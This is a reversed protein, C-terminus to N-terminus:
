GAPSATGNVKMGETLSPPASLIVTDGERVGERVRVNEGEAGGPTLSRRVAKGNVVVYVFTGAADQRVAAAPITLVRSRDRPTWQATGALGSAVRTLGAPLRLRVIYSRGDASVVPPTASVVATLPTEPQNDLTIRVRQGPQVDAVQAAPVAVELSLADTAVVMMLPMGPQAIEGSRAQLESIQGTFPSVLSGGGVQAVAATRGARAQAIQAQAAEIDRDAIRLAQTKARRADRLAAEAQQVGINAASVEAASVETRLPLTDAAPRAAARAQELAALASDRQSRAIDAQAQAGELDARAIGKHDYLFQLRALTENAQKLGIEAQRVGAEAQRVAADARERDSVAGMGTLRGGLRAQERKAQATKLGAAAQAIQADLEIARARKGEVAKRYQAEVAQIGAQAGTVQAAAGGVDLRVLTQGATVRDGERVAVGTIRSPVKATIAAQREARVVGSLTLPRSVDRAAVRVTTVRVGDNAESPASKGLPLPTAAIPANRARFNYVVGAALVGLMALVALLRKM